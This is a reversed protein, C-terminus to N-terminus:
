LETLDSIKLSGDIEKVTFIYSITRESGIGKEFGMSIAMDNSVCEKLRFTIDSSIVVCDKRFELSKIDTNILETVLKYDRYVKKTYSVDDREANLKKIYEDSLLPYDEDGSFTKYDRNNQKAALNNIFGKIRGILAADAADEDTFSRIEGKNETESSLNLATKVEAEDSNYADTSGYYAFSQLSNEKEVWEMDYLTYETGRFKLKLNLEAPMTSGIGNPFGVTKASINSECDKLMVNVTVNVYADGSIMIIHNVKVSSVETVCNVSSYYKKVTEYYEEGPDYSDWYLIKEETGTINRYDRNYLQAVYKKTFDYAQSVTYTKNIKKQNGFLTIKSYKYEFELDEANDLTIKTCSSFIFPIILLILLKKLKM